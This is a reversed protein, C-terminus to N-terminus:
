PPGEGGGRAEELVGEYGGAGGAVAGRDAELHGPERAGPAGGSRAGPAGTPVLHISCGRPFIRRETLRSPRRYPTSQSPFVISHSFLLSFFFVVFSTNVVSVRLCTRSLHSPLYTMFPYDTCLSMHRKHDQDDMKVCWWMKEKWGEGNTEKGVWSM